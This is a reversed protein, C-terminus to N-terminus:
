LSPLADTLGTQAMDVFMTQGLHKSSPYHAFASRNLNNYQQVVISYEGFVQAQTIM